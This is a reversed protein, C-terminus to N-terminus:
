GFHLVAAASSRMGRPQHAAARAEAAARAARGKDPVLPARPRPVPWSEIPCRCLQQRARAAAAVSSGPFAPAPTFRRNHYLRSSLGECRTGMRKPGTSISGVINNEACACVIYLWVSKDVHRLHEPGANQPWCTNLTHVCCNM